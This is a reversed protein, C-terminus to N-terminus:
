KDSIIIEGFKIDKLGLQVSVSGKWENIEPFYAVNINGNNMLVDRDFSGMGFGIAGMSKVTDDKLNMKLHKEKLVRPEDALMIGRSCFTPKPNGMGYPFLQHIEEILDFDVQEFKLEADIKLVPILDEKTLKEKSYNNIEKRLGEINKEEIKLGAAQSHGGYNHIWKKSHNMGDLLHFAPISRGSGYGWGDDEVAILITPRFYREIIKSAVIGIIGRHWGKSSLVICNDNELDVEEEIKEVAQNFIKEQLSRRETNQKDLEEAIEKAEQISETNFLQMVKDATGLRGSSNIRPGLGFSINGTNIEKGEFGSVEILAKLGLNKTNALTELGNKVLIRNEGDLPVIDSVTGVCVFDLLSFEDFDSGFKKILAQIVKFVVGVAALKKYPYECGEQKPDIVSVANPIEGIQEHHDVVIVDVDNKNAYDVQTNATIGCDVTIILGIDKEKAVDIAKENLGYGETLRNPFYYSVDGGLAKIAKNLITTSTVGDVDFDGFILIKEGTTIAKTIREIAKDMGKMLNPDHLDKLDCDLFQRAEKPDVIGRATLINAVIQSVGLKDILKKSADKDHTIRKWSKEVPKTNFCNFVGLNYLEYVILAEHEADDAGRHTEIYDTNPFFFDWAEQVKPWKNGYGNKSTIKCIDTALLMPCPLDSIVLDRSRLFDFDFAKNFATAPYENFIKQIKEKDLPNAGMVEEYMLDSNDFIWSDRHEEGFGEEKILENYLCETGGTELDLLIIGVEVILGGKNLFGTTEIDVVAIKM